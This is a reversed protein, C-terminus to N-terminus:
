GMKFAMNMNILILDININSVIPFFSNSQHTRDLYEVKLGHFNKIGVNNMYFNKSVKCPSKHDSYNKSVYPFTPLVGGASVHFTNAETEIGNNILQM